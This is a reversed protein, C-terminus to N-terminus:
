EEIPVAEILNMILKYGESGHATLEMKQPIRAPETNRGPAMNVARLLRLDRAYRRIEWHGSGKCIVDVIGGDPDRYRSISAGNELFGAEIMPGPPDLFLLRIDEALGEAFPKSDFPAMARNVTLGPGWEADFVALGEITMIACRFSRDASSIVAVGTVFVSKGGPMVAEISHVFQWKGKPFPDQCTQHGRAAFDRAPHVKPLNSCATFLFGAALLLFLWKM